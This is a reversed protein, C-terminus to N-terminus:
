EVDPWCKELNMLAISSIAGVIQIVVGVFIMPMAFFLGSNISQIFRSKGLKNFFPLVRTMVFGGEKFMDKFM